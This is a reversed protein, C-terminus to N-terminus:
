KGVSIKLITDVPQILKNSTIWLKLDKLNINLEDVDKFFGISLENRSSKGISIKEGERMGKENPYGIAREGNNSNIGFDSTQTGTRIIDRGELSYLGINRYSYDIVIINKPREGKYFSNEHDSRYVRNITLGLLENGKEDKLIQEKGIINEIEEKLVDEEIRATYTKEDWGVTKGMSEAIARIPVYTTNKYLINDAELKKENVIVNIANFRAEINRSGKFGTGAVPKATYKEGRDSIEATNTEANFKVNKGLMDATARLPIYTTGKYLINDTEVKKNNVLLNIANLKVDINVISEAFVNISLIFVLLISAVILKRNM